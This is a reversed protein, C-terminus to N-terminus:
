CKRNLIGPGGKFNFGNNKAIAQYGSSEWRKFWLGSPAYCPNGPTARIAFYAAVAPAAFSTGQYGFDGYHKLEKLHSSVCNKQNFYSASCYAVLTPHPLTYWGWVSYLDAADSAAVQGGKRSSSRLTKWSLGGVSIVSDLQGPYTAFGLGYNGSAAVALTPHGSGRLSALTSNLATNFSNTSADFLHREVQDRTKGANQPLTLLKEVFATFYNESDNGLEGRSQYDRFAVSAQCPIMAFSMNLVISEGATLPPWKTREGRLWNPLSAILNAVSDVKILRYPDTPNTLRNLDFRLVRIRRERGSSIKRTYIFAAFPEAITQVAQRAQISRDLSFGASELLARTHALVLDGHSVFLTPDADLRVADEKFNDIILLTTTGPTLNLNAQTPAFRFLNLFTPVEAGKSEAKYTLGGDLWGPYWAKGFITYADGICKEEPKLDAAGGSRREPRPYSIPVPSDTHFGSQSTQPQAQVTSLVMSLLVLTSVKAKRLSGYERM